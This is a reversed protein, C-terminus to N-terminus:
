PCLPLHDHSMAHVLRTMIAQVTSCPVFEFSCKKEVQTDVLWEREERICKAEDTEDGDDDVHDLVHWFVLLYRQFDSVHVGKFPVM